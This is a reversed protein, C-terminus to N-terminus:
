GACVYLFICSPFAGILWSLAMSVLVPFITSGFRQQPDAYFTSVLREPLRSFSIRNAHGLTTVVCAYRRIHKTAGFSILLLAVMVGSIEYLFFYALLKPDGDLWM